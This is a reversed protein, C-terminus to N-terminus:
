MYTSALGGTGSWLTDKCQHCHRQLMHFLVPFQLTSKLVFCIKLPEPNAEGEYRIVTPPPPLVVPSM